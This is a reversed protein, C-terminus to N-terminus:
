YIKIYMKKFLSKRLPLGDKISQNKKIPDNLADEYIVAFGVPVALTIDKNQFEINVNIGNPLYYCFWYGHATKFKERWNPLPKFNKKAIILFDIDSWYRKGTSTEKGEPIHGFEWRLISGFLRIESINNLESTLSSLVEKKVHELIKEQNIKDLIIKAM